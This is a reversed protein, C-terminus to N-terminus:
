PLRGFWHLMLGGGLVLILMSVGAFISTVEMKEPRIVLEPSINNYIDRLETENIAHYYEGGTLGAIQQLTTQNLQSHVTFGDINLIAGELSGIGISYIRVGFEAAAYAAEFPDPPATNEGDTLLVIIAPGYIEDRAPELAPPAEANLAEDSDGFISHLSTLIAHGLSTGRQPELRDISAIVAGQDTTPAQVPIGGESFAVVGINVNPPQRQIFERASEKAAELRSPQLDDAAMSGSVDFALIVTGEARPLSVSMEPRALAVFLLALGVLFLLPPIHRQRGPEPRQNPIGPFSNFNSRFRERWRQLYIYFGILVPIFFLLLLMTPWIFTM